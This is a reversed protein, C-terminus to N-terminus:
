VPCSTIFNDTDANIIKNVYEEFEINQKVWDVVIEAPKNYEFKYITQTFWFMAKALPPVDVPELNYFKELGAPWEFILNYEWQLAKIAEKDLNNNVFVYRKRKNDGPNISHFNDLFGKIQGSLIKYTDWEKLDPNGKIEKIYEHM